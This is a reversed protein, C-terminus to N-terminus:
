GEGPFRGFFVTPGVPCGARRLRSLLAVAAVAVVGPCGAGVGCDAGLTLASSAACGATLVAWLVSSGFVAMLAVVALAPVPSGIRPGNRVLWWGVGGGVGTM